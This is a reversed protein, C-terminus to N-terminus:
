YVAFQEVKKNTDHTNGCIYDTTNLTVYLGIEKCVLNGGIM